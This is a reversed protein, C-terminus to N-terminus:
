NSDHGNAKPTVFTVKLSVEGDQGNSTAHAEMKQDPYLNLLKARRDSIRLVTEICPLKGDAAGSFIASQLTDLRELEMALVQRADEYPIAALAEQIWRHVTSIAQGMLAAIEACTKGQKRLGLAKARNEQLAIKSPSTHSNKTTFSGKFPPRNKTRAKITEQNKAM